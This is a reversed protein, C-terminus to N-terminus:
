RDAIDAPQLYGSAAVISAGSGGANTGSGDTACDGDSHVALLYGQRNLVGAGSSGDLTDIDAYYVRDRCAGALTGEAIVKPRARPHQIIALLDTPRSTLPTPTVAPLEDLRLLAYDPESSLEIVTGGTLPPDGDAGGEYNFGGVGEDGVGVFHGATLVVPGAAAAILTGTCDGNVLVVANERLQVEAIQGEYSNIPTFDASSGCQSRPSRDISTLGQTQACIELRRPPDSDGCAAVSGIALPGLYLAAAAIRVGRSM